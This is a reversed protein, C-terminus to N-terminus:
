AQHPLSAGEDRLSSAQADNAEPAQGGTDTEQETPNDPQNSLYNPEVLAAHSTFYRMYNFLKHFEGKRRPQSGGDSTTKSAKSLERLENLRDEVKKHLSEELPSFEVKEESAHDEPIQLIPRVM